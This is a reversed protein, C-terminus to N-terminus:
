VLTLGSGTNRWVIDSLRDGDTDCIQEIGWNLPPKGISASAAKELGNMQWVVASGIPSNPWRLDTKGDGDFDGAVREAGQFRQAFAGWGDGDQNLSSWIAVFDGGADM